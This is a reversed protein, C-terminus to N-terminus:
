FEPRSNLIAFEPLKIVNRGFRVSSITSRSNIARARNAGILRRIVNVHPIIRGRRDFMARGGYERGFELMFVALSFPTDFCRQIQDGFNERNLVRPCLHRANTIDNRPFPAIDSQRSSTVRFQTGYSAYKRMMRQGDLTIVFKSLARHYEFRSIEESTRIHRTM